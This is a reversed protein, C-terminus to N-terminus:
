SAKASQKTVTVIGPNEFRPPASEENHPIEIEIKQKLAKKCLDDMWSLMTYLEHDSLQIGHMEQYDALVDAPDPHKENRFIDMIQESDRFLNGFMNVETPLVQTSTVYPQDTEYFDIGDQGNEGNNYDVGPRARDIDEKTFRRTQEFGGVNNIRKM